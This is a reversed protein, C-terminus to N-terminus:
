NVKRIAPRALDEFTYGLYKNKKAMHEQYM